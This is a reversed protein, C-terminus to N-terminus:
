LKEAERLRILLRQKHSESTIIIFRPDVAIPAKLQHVRGRTVGMIKAAGAFTTQKLCVSKMHNYLEDILPSEAPEPKKRLENILRLEIHQNESLWAQDRELAELKVKLARNEEELLDIRVLLCDIAEQPDQPQYVFVQESPQAAENSAFNNLATAVEIM